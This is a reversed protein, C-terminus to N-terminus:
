LPMQDDDEMEAVAAAAQRRAPRGRQAGNSRAAVPEDDEYAPAIMGEDEAEGAAQQELQQLAYEETLFRRVKNNLQGNYEESNLEAYVRKGKYYAVTIDLGPEVGLADHFRDWKWQNPKEKDRPDDFNMYYKIIRGTPRGGRIVALSLTCMENGSSKSVGEVADTVQLQYIGDPLASSSSTRSTNIRRAM